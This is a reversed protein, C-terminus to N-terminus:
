ILNLIHKNVVLFDIANNKSVNLLINGFLFLTLIRIFVFLDKFISSFGNFLIGNIILLVAGDTKM